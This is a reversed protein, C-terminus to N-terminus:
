TAQAVVQVLEPPHFGVANVGWTTEVFASVLALGGRLAENTPQERCTARLEGAIQEAVQRAQQLERPDDQGQADVPLSPVQAFRQLLRTTQRRVREHVGLWAEDRRLGNNPHEAYEFHDVFDGRAFVLGAVADDLARNAAVLPRATAASTSRVVVRALRLGLELAAMVAVVVVTQGAVSVWAVCAVALRVPQLLTRGVVAALMCAAASAHLNNRDAAEAARLPAWELAFGLLGHRSLHHHLGDYPDSGGFSSGHLPYTARPNSHGRGVAVEAWFILAAGTLWAPAEALFAHYVPWAIPSRNLALVGAFALRVGGGVYSTADKAERALHVLRAPRPQLAHGAPNAAPRAARRQHLAARSAVAARALHDSDLAVDHFTGALNVAAYARTAARFVNM